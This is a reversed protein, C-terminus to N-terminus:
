IKQYMFKKKGEGPLIKKDNMRELFNGVTFLPDIRLMEMCEKIKTDRLQDKTRKRASCDTPLDERLVKIMKLQKGFEHYQLREM